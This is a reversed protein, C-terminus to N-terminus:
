GKLWGKGSTKPKIGQLQNGAEIMREAAFTLRQSSERAERKDSLGEILPALQQLANGSVVLKSGVVQVSQRTMIGAGAEELNKGCATVLAVTLAIKDALEAAEDARAEDVALELKSSAELLCTAAERMEDCVLEAATKFRCSAAAQAISDGANRIQAGAASLAGGYLDLATTLDILLEGSRALAKGSDLLPIAAPKLSSMQLLTTTTSPPPQHRPTRTTDKSSRTVLPLTSPFSM